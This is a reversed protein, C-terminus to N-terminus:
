KQDLSYIFSAVLLALGAMLTVASLVFFWPTMGFAGNVCLIGTGFSVALSEIGRVMLKRPFLPDM